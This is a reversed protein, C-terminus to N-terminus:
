GRTLPKKFYIGQFDDDECTTYPLFGRSLLSRQSKLNSWQTYTWAAEAGHAKGWRTRVDILRKQLGHGRASPAVAARSLFVYRGGDSLSAGCYGVPEWVGGQLAEAVWWQSEELVDELGGLPGYAKDLRAILEIDETQRIRVAPKM